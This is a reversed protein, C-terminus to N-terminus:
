FYFLYIDKLNNVITRTETEFVLWYGSSDTSSYIKLQHLGRLDKKTYVAILKNDRISQKFKKFLQVDRVDWLFLYKSDSAVGSYEAVLSYERLKVLFANGDREFFERSIEKIEM